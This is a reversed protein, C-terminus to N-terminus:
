ALDCHINNKNSFEKLNEMMVPPGCAFIKIENDILDIAKFADIVNGKMGISGDDTSLVIRKEIDHKLFHESKDKAGMILYHLINNEKLYNSLYMIPAIGVGGGILIPTKEFDNWSNGLPGIIDIEDGRKWKSMLDTGSGFVKYILEINEGNVGALSMPRRMAKDWNKHPLINVFQGSYAKGSIKPSKLIARYTNKAILDNSLVISIENFYNM